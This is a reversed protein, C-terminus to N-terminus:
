CNWHNLKKSQFQEKDKLHKEPIRKREEEINRIKKNTRQKKKEM